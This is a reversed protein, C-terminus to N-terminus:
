QSTNISKAYYNYSCNLLEVRFSATIRKYSNTFTPNPVGLSDITWLFIRRNKMQVSRRIYISKKLWQVTFAATEGEM